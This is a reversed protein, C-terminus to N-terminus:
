EVIAFVGTLGSAQRSHRIRVPRSSDLSACVAKKGLDEGVGQIQEFCDPM